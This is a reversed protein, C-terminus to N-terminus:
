AEEHVPESRRAAGTTPAWDPSDRGRTRGLTESPNEGFMARYDGAFCGLRFFGWRMAVAAVTTGRRARELEKRAASLRLSKLYAM